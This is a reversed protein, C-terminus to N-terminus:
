VRARSQVQAYRHGLAMVAVGLCITAFLFNLWTFWLPQRTAIGVIWLASLGLGLVGPGFANAPNHEVRDDVIGSIAFAVIAAVADFWLLEMGRNLGLGIAWFLALGLGILFSSKRVM